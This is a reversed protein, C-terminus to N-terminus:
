VQEGVWASDREMRTALIPGGSTWCSSTFFHLSSWDIALTTRVLFHCASMLLPISAAPTLLNDHQRTAKWTTKSVTQRGSDAQAIWDVGLMWCRRMWRGAQDNM